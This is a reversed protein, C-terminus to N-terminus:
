TRDLIASASQGSSYESRRVDRMLKSDDPEVSETWPAICTKTSNTSPSRESSCIRGTRRSRKGTSNSIRPVASTLVGREQNVVRGQNM